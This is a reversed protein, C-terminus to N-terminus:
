KEKGCIKCRRIKMIGKPVRSEFYTRFKHGDRKCDWPKFWRSDPRIGKM